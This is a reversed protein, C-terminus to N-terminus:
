MCNFHKLRYILMDCEKTYFFILMIHDSIKLNETRTPCDELIALNTMFLKKSEIAQKITKGELFPKIMDEIVAFNEPIATCMEILLSNLCSLRQRGFKMDDNFYKSGQPIGFVKTYVTKLDEVKKWEKEKGKKTLKISEIGYEALKSLLVDAFYHWSFTEDEPLM